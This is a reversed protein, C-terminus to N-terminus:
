KKKENSSSLFFCVFLCVFMLKGGKQMNGSSLFLLQMRICCGYESSSNSKKWIKICWFCYYQLTIFIYEIWLSSVLTCHGHHRAYHVFIDCKLYLEIVHKIVYNLHHIGPHRMIIKLFPRINWCRVSSLLFFQTYLCLYRQVESKEFTFTVNHLIQVTSHSIHKTVYNLHNIKLQKM